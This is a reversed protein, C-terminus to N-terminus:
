SPLRPENEVAVVKGPNLLNAPDLAKKLTRMLEIEADSRAYSLWKRKTTGIGHEASINGGWEAVLTYITRDIADKPQRAIDLGPVFVDLHLNGDGVHGYLVCDCGPVSRRLAAECAEAFDGLRDASVGVDYSIHPGIAAGFEPGSERLAWFASEQALSQAVAADLVTGREIMLALWNEMSEPGADEDFEHLEIMAYLAYDPAIPSRLGVPGTVVKWFSSWMVEFASLKPGFADRASRLLTVVDGYAALGCVATVTRRPKPYLRLVARTIIGLTGESGIFLHKLDYGSNNKLLTNLSTIVAGDPLVVELGLVLDRTMGYRLVRIGGANTSLNGGITCSGRAGLDLPFLFGAEDAAKQIVELPTGAKVTMTANATDIDEIGNMRELSIAAWGPLPTAGGCLGTMGGQAVFPIGAAVCAKVVRSVENADAPRLVAAPPCPPSVGWDHTNRAPIDEGTLVAAAGLDARLGTFVDNARASSDLADPQM